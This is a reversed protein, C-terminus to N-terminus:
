LYHLETGQQFAALTETYKKQLGMVKFLSGMENPLLLQKIPYIDPSFPEISKAIRELIGTGILFHTQSTYGAVTLGLKESEVAVQTFNVHATIDQEGVRVLPDTYAAQKHFCMLTGKSREPRYYERMGYGYDVLLILGTSLMENISRLWPALLSNVESEYGIPFSLAYETLFALISERAPKWDWSFEGTKPEVDVYAEEIGGGTVRFKHVPLADLVENALVVGSFTDPAPLADLWTVQSLLHPATIQITQRQREKLVASPELIFYQPCFGGTELALLLAAAMKGSGAGLELINKQESHLFFEECPQALSQSFYDSLEPATVFDGSSGFKVGSNSYYGLGPTYLAQEMFQCFPMAGQETIYETIKAQLISM